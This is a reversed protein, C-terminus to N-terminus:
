APKLIQLSQHGWDILGKGIGNIRVRKLRMGSTGVVQRQPSRDRGGGLRLVRDAIGAIAANHTIIVITTGFRENTRAIAALVVKGTEYNL